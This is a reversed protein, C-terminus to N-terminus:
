GLILFVNKKLLKIFIIKKVTDASIELLDGLGDFTINAFLKSVSLMNHEIISRHMISFGDFDILKQHPM